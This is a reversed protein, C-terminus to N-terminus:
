KWMMEQDHNGVVYTLIRDPRSLFKKLSDFFIPHGDIISRLKAISVSETVIVPYHGHYDVQVLNLMDGNFILELEHDRFKEQEYFDLFEAFRHDHVFDELPNLSGDPLRRGKNVHFDSVVLKLKKM